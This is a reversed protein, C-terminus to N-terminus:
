ELFLCDPLVHKTDQTECLPSLLVQLAKLSSGLSKQHYRIDLLRLEHKNKLIRETNSCASCYQQNMLYPNFRVISFQGILVKRAPLIHEGM